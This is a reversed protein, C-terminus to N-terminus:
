YVDFFKFEKEYEQMIDDLKNQAIELKEFIIEIESEQAAIIKYLDIIKSSENKSSLEILEKQNKELEEEAKIIINELKEIEKKLPKTLRNRKQILVAKQKKNEYQNSKPAKKVKKVEEEEEWGIKELFLDYGGDFYEAGGSTFIVLRNAVQRLLEESHTVIVVSGKFNKIAKTLSEISEMDLHNTPEDLFLLNVEQALTKGLMVRSKEGGSLLSIKKDSSDGCFMMAGCIGKAIPTSLKTNSSYIEEFVTNNLNLHNINTQGFHAFSTAPHMKIEGSNQDLEKALINLFTSKGKGNKGIIGLCEGKKLVFSIDKFLIKDNSYGFSLDKVELLIKAPTDKFNFDFKLMADIEFDNLREIKELQKVKSQALAATSARAKNKAIFTELEKIKKEQSIKQKVHLEENAKLQEYFKHTNGVIISLKKRAIGMTHTTIKDMFDRNHTILIVEGDFTKLFSELWRLSVIDLYNTPEDLLLLNPEAVLLKALNIRIQYGGSFSLPDSNLDHRTFGLGFLVKEVRYTDYKVDESLALSVENILSKQTFKLHQKLAGIRYNKPILIEGSDPEIEGLILRSLTSKGSGNRGVLGVRNKSSLKFNIGGFLEQTAFSKYINIFQIM